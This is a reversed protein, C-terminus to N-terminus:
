SLTLNLNTRTKDLDDRIMPTGGLAALYKGVKSDRDADWHAYAACAIKEMTHIVEMAAVLRESLRQVTKVGAEDMRTGRCSEIIFDLERKSNDYKGKACVPYGCHLNHTDPGCCKTPDCSM